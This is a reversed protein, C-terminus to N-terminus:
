LEFMKVSCLAGKSGEKRDIQRDKKREKEVYSNNDLMSWHASFLDVVSHSKGDGNM